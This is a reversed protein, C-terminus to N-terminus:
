IIAVLKGLMRSAPCILTSSIAYLDLCCLPSPTFLTFLYTDSSQPLPIEYDRGMKIGHVNLQLNEGM